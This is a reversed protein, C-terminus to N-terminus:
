RRGRHGGRPMPRAMERSHGRQRAQYSRDLDRTNLSPRTSPTSPRTAPRTSPQTAPRQTPTAPRTAPRTEPRQAPRSVPSGTNAWKGDQRSQWQDGDVRAVQGSRDAYVNNARGTAPQAQKLDHSVTARDANRARNEPRNYVNQRRDGARNGITNRNGVNINNGINIDGTNIVTPGRYGGGYWGGCCGWPRYAGGYGGGWSM